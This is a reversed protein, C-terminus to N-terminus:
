WLPKKIKSCYLTYHIHIIFEERLNIEKEDLKDGKYLHLLQTCFKYTLRYDEIGESTKLRRDSIVYRLIERTLV